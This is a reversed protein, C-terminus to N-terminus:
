IRGVAARTIEARGTLTFPGEDFPIYLTDGRSLFIESRGRALVDGGTVLLIEPGRRMLPPTSDGSLHLVSLEFEPASTPYVREFPREDEGRLIDVPGARFDLVRSLEPVDVHKKTLGGRLVNDSSAMIELGTGELYAHLNGAPLYIAEGPLLRVVNLLLSVVAGVDGPYLAALREAWHCEDKWPGQAANHVACAHIVDSVLETAATPGMALLSVFVGKLADPGDKALPGCVETLQRSGIAAVLQNTRAVDRFGCLAWFPTMACLLEPKHHRDKYNRNPATVPLGAAEERDFGEQAQAETPHAQLSLPEAAALVKFLFPLRPGFRQVCAAGLNKEPASAIVEGLPRGGEALKSPASPHAGMWLEAEPTASAPAGRLEAIATHSGWAYGQVANQLRHMDRRTYRSVQDPSVIRAAAEKM